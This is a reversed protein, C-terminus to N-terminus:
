FGYMTKLLQHGRMSLQDTYSLHSMCPVLSAASQEIIIVKVLRQDQFYFFTYGTYMYSKSNAVM